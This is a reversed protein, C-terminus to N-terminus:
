QSGPKRSALRSAAAQAAPSNPDEKQIQQYINAAEDPQKQQYLSALEL